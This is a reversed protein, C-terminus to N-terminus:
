SYNESAYLLAPYLAGRVRIWGGRVQSFPDSSLRDIHTDVVTIISPLERDVFKNIIQTDTSAWSWSPARYRSPRERRPQRAMHARNSPQGAM